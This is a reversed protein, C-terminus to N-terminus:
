EYGRNAPSKLYVAMAQRDASSLHATGHEIVAAMHGGTFDGEPTMGIELFFVLDDITWDRLAEATIAPVSAGEPGRENGSLQRDPVGGFLNREAHCEACHAPGEVLYEGRESFRDPQYDVPVYLTKWLGLGSRALDPIRLNHELSPEPIPDTSQLWAFLDAIDQRQMAAYAPYPFAPWYHVGDPRRGNLLAQALMDVSWSGIGSSQDSTINPSFFTGFPSDLAVGGALLAGGNDTDTHCAICGAARAVSEGREPDGASPVADSSTYVAFRAQELRANNAHAYAVASVAIVVACLALSLIIWRARM